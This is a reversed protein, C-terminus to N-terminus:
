QEKIQNDIIFNRNFDEHIGKIKTKLRKKKNQLLLYPRKQKLAKFPKIKRKRRELPM